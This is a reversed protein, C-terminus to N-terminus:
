IKIGLWNTEASRTGDIAGRLTEALEATKIERGGIGAIFNRVWPKRTDDPLRDYLAAKLDSCLAGEYGYSLAKEFVIVGAANQLAAAVAADPFPRYLRVGLVGV